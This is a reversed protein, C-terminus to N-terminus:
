GVQRCDVEDVSGVWGFGGHEGRSFDGSMMVTGARTPRGLLLRDAGECRLHAILRAFTAPQLGSFLEVVAPDSASIVVPSM